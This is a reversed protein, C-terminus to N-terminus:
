FELVLFHLLLEERGGASPAVRLLYWTLQCNKLIFLQIFGGGRSCSYFIVFYLKLRLSAHILISCDDVVPLKM